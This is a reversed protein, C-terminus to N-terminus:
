EPSGHRRERRPIPLEFRGRVFTVQGASVEALVRVKRQGPRGTVIRLFSRTLCSTEVALSMVTDFSGWVAQKGHLMAYSRM